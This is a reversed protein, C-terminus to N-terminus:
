TRASSVASSSILLGNLLRRGIRVRLRQGIDLRSQRRKRRENKCALGALQLAVEGLDRRALREQELAAVAGLAEELVAGVVDAVEEADEQLHRDDEGEGTREGTTFIPRM